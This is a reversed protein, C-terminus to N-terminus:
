NINFLLLFQGTLLVLKIPRVKNQSKKGIRYGNIIDSTTININLKTNMISIAEKTVHIM